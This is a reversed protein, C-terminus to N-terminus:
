MLDIPYRDLVKVYAHIIARGQEVPVTRASLSV